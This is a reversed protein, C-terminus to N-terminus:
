KIVPKIWKTRYKDILAMLIAESQADPIGSIDSSRFHMQFASVVKQTEKDLVGTTPTQYGYKALLSQFHAVDVPQSLPRGELYFEVTENDPWAGIGQKALEAWPFQPGPDVKRQPAIDSHGVINQPEIGYRQIIDKMLVTIAKIQEPTYPFWERLEGKDQYGFNVIEIGISGNNLSASEGWQSLGAHWARKNESVLSLVVPKGQIVEPQTPVLYHSSVHGATLTKLSEKDDQATYHMVLFKVRNDQGPNNPVIQAIYSERDILTPQTVCGTLLSVSMLLSITYRNLFM